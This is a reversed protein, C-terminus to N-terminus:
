KAEALKAKVGQIEEEFTRLNEKQFPLDSPKATELNSVVQPYLPMLKEHIVVVGPDMMIKFGAKQAYKCFGVDEMSFDVMDGIKSWVPRFWPYEMKEFVGRKIAMIGFGTYSVEFPKKRKAVDAPSMFPFTRNQKFFEEDWKEVTAFQRGDAMLYFGSMIPQDHSILRLIQEPHFLIDSDIWITWDYDIQGNFPKQKPGRGIDGGLVLNRAYYINCSYDFRPYVAHERGLHALAATWARMFRYSFSAGPICFVLKM